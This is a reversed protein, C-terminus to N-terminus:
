LDRALRRLGPVGIALEFDPARKEEALTFGVKRYAREAAENGILFSIQARRFGAGRARALEYKLLAETVGQGRCASLTAVNEVTWAGDDNTTSSLIFAGRPWLEAQEAERICMADSAEKMADGSALYVAENGFGCLTSAPEGNVEAVSFLSWHWWSRAKALTLRRCFELCFSEDRQLVIDFWGRALHGRAAEYIAWGLFVADEPRAPRISPTICVVEPM